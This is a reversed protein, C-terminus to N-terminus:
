QEVEKENILRISLYGSPLLPAGHKLCLHKLRMFFPSDDADGFITWLERALTIHDIKQVTENHYGAQVALEKLFHKNLVTKASHTDLAGEALKVAKGIMIGLIVEPVHLASAITLTEGIFNGYHIFAQSPLDPYIKKLFRESRAGSNIVIRTCGIAKAVEVSKRISAIFADHSFPHVIGSTGIISIGGEVGLRPNFTREALEKGGSVSLTVMIDSFRQYQAMVAQLESIIMQRPVPNVAPEGVKLGLGPLTVTGVGEGAYIIIHPSHYIKDTYEEAAPVLEIQAVVACGDTIDPDSGADKIVTCSVVGKKCRVSAVPLTVQEGSPLSIQSESPDDGSLLALLAAKAAAAACTGTTYGIRLPFFDPLLRGIQMYLGANGYVTHFSKPLAPRRIVFIPINLQKALNIKQMFHGSYGSEKTLIANPRISQIWETNDDNEKDYFLLHDPPFGEKQAVALSEKRNLIRFWCDYKEWYPRLFTISSVGTLVLLRDIHRSEMYTIADTYNDFWIVWQDDPPYRREYRIVQINLTQSVAAVTQHLLVAFPHAADILLQIRNEICFATMSDTDMGGTLRIGHAMDIKQYDYLTSYYFCKGVRDIVTAAARGETTGGLILIM